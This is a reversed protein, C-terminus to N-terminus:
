QCTALKVAVGNITANVYGNPTCGSGGGGTTTVVNPASVSGDTGVKMVTNGGSRFLFEGGSPVDLYLRPDGDGGGIFGVRQGDNNNGNFTFNSYGSTGGAGIKARGAYGSSMGTFTAYAPTTQGITTGDISGGNSHMTTANVTPATFAQPSFSYISNLMYYRVTSTSPEYAITDAGGTGLGNELLFL